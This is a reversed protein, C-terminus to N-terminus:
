RVPGICIHMPKKRVQGHSVHEGFGRCIVRCACRHLWGSVVHDDHKRVDWPPLPARNRLKHGGPLLVKILSPSPIPRNQQTVSEPHNDETITPHDQNKNPSEIDRSCYFGTIPSIPLCWVSKTFMVIVVGFVGEGGVHGPSIDCRSANPYASM